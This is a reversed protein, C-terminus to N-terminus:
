LCSYIFCLYNNIPNSLLRIITLSYSSTKHLQSKCFPFKMKLVFHLAEPRYNEQTKRKKKKLESKERWNIQVIWLLCIIQVIIITKFCTCIKDILYNIQAIWPKDSCEIPQINVTLMYLLTITMRGMPTNIGISNQKM